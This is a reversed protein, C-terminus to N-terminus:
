IDVKLQVGGCTDFVYTRVTFGNKIAFALKWRGMHLGFYPFEVPSNGTQIRSDAGSLGRKTNFFFELLSSGTQIRIGSESSGCTTALIVDKLTIGTQVRWDWVSM